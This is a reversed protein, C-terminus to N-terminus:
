HVKGNDKNELLELGVLYHGKFRGEDTKTIHRIETALYETPCIDNNSYYKMKLTHGVELQSLLASDERVLVCMSMSPTDWIKFQYSAGGNVSFEVSYYQNEGNMSQQHEVIGKTMAAANIVPEEEKRTKELMVSPIGDHLLKQLILALNILVM